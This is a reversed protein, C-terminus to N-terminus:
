RISTWFLGAFLYFLWASTVLVLAVVPYWFAVMVIGTNALLTYSVVRLTSQIRHHRAADRALSKKRSVLFVSLWGLNHILNTLCYLLIALKASETDLFRGLLGASFPFVVVTLMLFGNAYIFASSTKDLQTLANHHNTWAIFLTLFTLLFSFWSPWEEALLTGLSMSPGVAAVDPVHIELVLLTIAIAFIADCFAELRGNDTRESM